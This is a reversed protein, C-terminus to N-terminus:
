QAMASGAAAAAATAETHFGDKGQYAYYLEMSDQVSIKKWGDATVHYVRVLGGSYADRHTAATIARRGLECAEEVSLDKRYGRDLVGYAFTSGSGVSFRDGKM